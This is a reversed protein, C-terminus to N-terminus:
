AVFLLKYLCYDNPTCYIPVCHSLKINEHGDQVIWLSGWHQQSLLSERQIKSCFTYPKRTLTMQKNSGSTKLSSYGSVVFYGYKSDRMDSAMKSGQREVASLVASCGADGSTTLEAELCVFSQM